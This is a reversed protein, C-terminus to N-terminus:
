DLEKVDPIPSQAMDPPISEHAVRASEISLSNGEPLLRLISWPVPHPDSQGLGLAEVAERQSDNSPGTIAYRIGGDSIWWLQEHSLSDTAQGTSEVYWGKGPNTYYFDTQPDDDRAPLLAVARNRDSTRLPVSDLVYLQTKAAADGNRQWDYCVTNHTLLAPTQTPYYGFDPGSASTALRAIESADVDNAIPAGSNALLQAVFLSIPQLGDDLVLYSKKEGVGDSTIVTGVKRGSVTRSIRGDSALTPKAMAPRVPIVDLFEATVPAANRLQDDTIGLTAKLGDADQKVETREGRYLLWAKTAPADGPQTVLFAEDNTLPAAPTEFEDAGAIILTRANRDPTLDLATSADFQSCVSWASTVDKRPEMADPASPIGMLQGRPYDDVLDDKVVKVNDASGVILRASALNTVPHLRDQWMVFRSGSKTALIEADGRDPKPSLLSMVLGAILILGGLGVGISFSSSEAAFPSALLRVDRRIFGQEIRRVLLRYGSIQTKTTLFRPM